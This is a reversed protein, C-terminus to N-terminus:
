TGGCKLDETTPLGTHIKYYTTWKYSHTSPLNITHSQKTYKISTAEANM